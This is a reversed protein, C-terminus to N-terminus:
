RRGRARLDDALHVLAAIGGVLGPEDPLPLGLLQAVFRPDKMFRANVPDKLQSDTASGEDLPIKGGRPSAVDFEWGAKVIVDLFHTLESLWLGTKKGKLSPDASTAIPTNGVMPVPQLYSDNPAQLGYAEFQTAIYEVAMDGGRQGPGRGLYEDSALVTVHEEILEPSVRL